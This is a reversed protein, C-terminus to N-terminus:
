WYKVVVCVDVHRAGHGGRGRTFEGDTEVLRKLTLRGFIGNNLTGIVSM